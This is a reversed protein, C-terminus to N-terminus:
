LDTRREHLFSYLTSLFLFFSFFFFFFIGASVCAFLHFSFYDNCLFWLKVHYFLFCIPPISSVFLYVYYPAKLITQRQGQGLCLFLLEVPSPSELFGLGHM